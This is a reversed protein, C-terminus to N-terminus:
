SPPRRTDKADGGGGPPGLGDTDGSCSASGLVPPGVGGSGVSEGRFV